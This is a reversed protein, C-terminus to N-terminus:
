IFAVFCLDWTADPPGPINGYGPIVRKLNNPGPQLNFLEWQEPVWDPLHAVKRDCVLSRFEELSVSEGYEDLIQFGGERLFTEWADWTILGREPYARLLFCCGYTDKGIHLREEKPAACHECPCPCPPCARRAFYNEGM